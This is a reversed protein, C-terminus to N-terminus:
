NIILFEIVISATSTTAGTGNTVVIALSGASATKSKITLASGTTAGSMSILVQTSVDTIQDNTMTLTLDSAAAISVTTFTVRGSRGSFVVPSAAAGNAAGSNLLIGKGLTAAVFNGATATINGSASSMALWVGAGCYIWTATGTAYLWIDGRVYARDTSVPARNAYIINPPNIPRVGQYQTPKRDLSM